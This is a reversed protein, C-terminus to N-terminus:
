KDTKNYNFYNTYGFIWLIFSNIQKSIWKIFAALGIGLVGLLLSVLDIFDQNEKSRARFLVIGLIIVLVFIINIVKSITKVRSTFTRKFLKLLSVETTDPLEKKLVIIDIARFRILKLFDDRTNLQNTNSVLSVYLQNLEQVPSLPINILEQFIFVLEFLNDNSSYNEKLINLLTSNIDKLESNTAHRSELTRIIWTKDIEYKFVGVVIIYILYNDYIWPSNDSPKRKSFETYIKVFENKNNESVSKIFSVFNKEITTTLNDGVFDLRKENIFDHFLKIKWNEDVKKLYEARELSVM